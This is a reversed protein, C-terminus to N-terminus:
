GDIGMAWHLLLDYSTTFIWEQDELMAKIHRLTEDPVDSHDAHVARVAHGLAIQVSRYRAYL